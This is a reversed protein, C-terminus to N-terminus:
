GSVYKDNFDADRMDRMDEIQEDLKAEFEDRSAKIQKRKQQREYSRQMEDRYSAVVSDFELKMLAYTVGDIPDSWYIHPKSGILENDTVIRSIEEYMEVSSASDMDYYDQNTSVYDEVMSQVLSNLMRALEARGRQSAQSRRVHINPNKNSVGVAHLAKDNGEDYLGVNDIWAPANDATTSTTELDGNAACATLLSSAALVVILALRPAPLRAM